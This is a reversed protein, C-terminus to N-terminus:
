KRLLVEDYALEARGTRAHVKWLKGEKSQYFHEGDPLWDFGLAPNGAFGGGRLLLEVAIPKGKTRDEPLPRPSGTTLPVQKAVRLVPYEKGEGLAADFFNWAALGDEAQPELLYAALQGLRQATKVVFMGAPVTRTAKQTTVDLTVLAHKQFPSEERRVGRVAYAE